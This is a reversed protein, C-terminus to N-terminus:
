RALRDGGPPSARGCLPSRGGISALPTLEDPNGAPPGVARKLLEGAAKAEQGRCWALGAGAANDVLVTPRQRCRTTAGSLQFASCM